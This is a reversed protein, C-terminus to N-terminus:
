LLSPPRATSCPLMASSPHMTFVAPTSSDIQFIKEKKIRIWLEGRGNLNNTDIWDITTGCADDWEQDEAKKPFLELARDRSEGLKLPGVRQGPEILTELYTPSKSEHDASQPSPQTDQPSVLTPVLLVAALLVAVKM